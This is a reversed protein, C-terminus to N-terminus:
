GFILQNIGLNLYVSIYLNRNIGKFIWHLHFVESPPAGANLLFLESDGSTNSTVNDNDQRVRTYSDVTMLFEFYKM